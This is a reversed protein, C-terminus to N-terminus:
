ANGGEASFRVASHHEGLVLTQKGRRHLELPGTARLDVRNHPTGFAEVVTAEPYAACIKEALRRHGATGNSGQALVIKTPQFLPAPRPLYEEVFPARTSM